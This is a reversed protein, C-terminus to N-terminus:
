TTTPALEIELTLQDREAPPFFEEPLTGAVVFGTIPIILGIVLGLVPFYLILKLIQRYLGTLLPLNIGTDWWLAAVAM